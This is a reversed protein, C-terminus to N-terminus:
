FESGVTLSRQRRFALLKNTSLRLTARQDCGKEKTSTLEHADDFTRHAAAPCRPQDVPFEEALSVLFDDDPLDADIAKRNPPESVDITCVAAASAKRSGLGPLLSAVSCIGLAM